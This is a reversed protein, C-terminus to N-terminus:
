RIKHILLLYAGGSALINDGDMRAIKHGNEYVFGNEDVEADFFSIGDTWNVVVPTGSTTTFPEGNYSLYVRFPTLGDGNDPKQTNNSSSDTTSQPTSDTTNPKTTSQTTEVSSSDCAILAFLALLSLVVILIKKM